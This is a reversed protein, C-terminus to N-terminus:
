VVAYKSMQVRCRFVSYLSRCIRPVTGGSGRNWVETRVRHYKGALKITELEQNGGQLDRSPYMYNSVFGEVFSVPTSFDVMM